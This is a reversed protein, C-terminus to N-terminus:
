KEIRSCIEDMDSDQSYACYMCTGCNKSFHCEEKTVERCTKYKKSMRKMREKDVIRM